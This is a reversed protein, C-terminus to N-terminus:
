IDNLWGARVTLMERERKTSSRLSRFFTTGLSAHQWQRPSCFFNLPFGLKEVIKALVEGRPIAHGLEFQSIAQRTVGIADALESTTYGRALRAEKLRDPVLALSRRESISRPEM